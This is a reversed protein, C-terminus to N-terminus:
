GVEDARIAHHIAEHPLTPVVPSYDIDVQEVVFSGVEIQYLHEADANRWM